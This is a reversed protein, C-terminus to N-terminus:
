VSGYGTLMVKVSRLVIKLDLWISRRKIWYLDYQLKELTGEISCTNGYNVQAWGTIGPLVLYRYEYFPIVRRFEEVLDVSEPRPGIMAMEGKIVNFFQPLEDLRFKRLFRGVRTIRKDGKQTWAEGKRRAGHVMTRFKFLMFPKGKRGAREQRFLVPGPSDLRIALAILPYLPMLVFFFGIVGLLFNLAQAFVSYVGTPSMTLIPVIWRSGVHHVPVRDTLQEYLDAMDYVPIGMQHCKVIEVLLGEGCDHGVSFVVGDAGHSKVLESLRASNGIIPISRGNKGDEVFVAGNVTDDIFGSVYKSDDRSIVSAITQGAWGAGIVIFNKGKFGVAAKLPSVAVFGGAM